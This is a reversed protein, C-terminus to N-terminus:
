YGLREEKWPDGHNHYGYNEWFGMKDEAMFEVGTVWKASKWFYLKPVVLRVPAGHEPTIPKGEFKTALMADDDFFEDIPLNTTFNGLAHVLVFKASPLINTVEKLHTTRVGEWPADLRSWGTVCHIDCHLKSEGLKLFDEFSLEVENEILGFLKLTWNAKDVNWANGYHLVPLGSVLTQGPPVRNKNDSSGSTTM